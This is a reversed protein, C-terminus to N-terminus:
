GMKRVAEQFLAGKEEFDKWLSYSPSATSLLCIKGPETARYAFAVAEEMDDTELVLFDDSLLPRIKQGSPSFLVVNRVGYQELVQVLQGFEYGRDTGGLFITDVQDGFTKVAAITSEPTTSIADDVFSIDHYTGITQLRHDLGGFDQFVESVLAHPISLMDALAVVAAMNGRVHEAEIKM